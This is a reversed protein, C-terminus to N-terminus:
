ILASWYIKLQTLNAIIRNCHLKNTSYFCLLCFQAIKFNFSTSYQNHLNLITVIGISLIKKNSLLTILNCWKTCNLSM